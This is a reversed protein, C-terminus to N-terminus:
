KLWASLGRDLFRTAVIERKFFNKTLSSFPYSAEGFFALACAALVLRNAESSAVQALITM